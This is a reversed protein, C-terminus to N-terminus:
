AARVDQLFTSVVGKLSEAESAVTQAAGAVEGSTQRSSTARAEADRIASAGEASSRAAENVNDSITSIASSQEEVASAVSTAISSMESLIGGIHGIAESVDGSAAQISTIRQVIEETAKATQSALAKVESAVVAFGKGAEGARAAEITANLALLNTQGAISRILEVVDGIQDAESALEGMMSTARRSQQVARDAVETSRVAQRSVEDISKSLQEAAVAVSSVERSAIATANGAVEAQSTLARSDADLTQSANRMKDASHELHQLASEISAGFGAIAQEVLRARELRLAAEEEATRALMAREEISAQFVRLAHSMGGIEDRRDLYPIEVNAESNAVRGMANALRSLAVGLSRGILVIMAISALAALTAAAIMFRSSLQDAKASERRAQIQRAEARERLAATAVAGRKALALTEDRLVKEDSIGKRWAEFIAKQKNLSEFLMEAQAKDFDAAELKSTLGSRMFEIRTELRSDRKWRYRLEIGRLDAYTMALSRFNEHTSVAGEFLAALVETMKDLDETLGEDSSRGVLRVQEVLKAFSARVKAQTESVGAAGERVQPDKSSKLTDLAKNADDLGSLIENEVAETRSELYGAIRSNALSFSSNVIDIQDFDDSAAKYRLEAEQVVSNSYGNLAVTLGLGVLPGLAILAIKWTVSRGFRGFAGGAKGSSM